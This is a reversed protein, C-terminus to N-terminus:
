FKSLGKGCIFSTYDVDYTKKFQLKINLFTFFFQQNHNSITMMKIFLVNFKCPILVNLYIYIQELM